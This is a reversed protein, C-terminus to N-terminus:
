EDVLRDAKRSAWILAVSVEGDHMEKCLEDLEKWTNEV